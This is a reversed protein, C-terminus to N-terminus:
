TQFFVWGYALFGERARIKSIKTFNQSFTAWSTSSYIYYAIDKWSVLLVHCWFKPTHQSKLHSQIYDKLRCPSVLHHCSLVCVRSEHQERVWLAMKWYIDGHTRHYNKWMSEEGKCDVSLGFTGTHCSEILDDCSALLNTSLSRWLLLGCSLLISTKGSPQAKRACFMAQFSYWIVGYM